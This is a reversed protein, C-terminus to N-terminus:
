STTMNVSSHLVAIVIQKRNTLQITCWIICINIFIGQDM